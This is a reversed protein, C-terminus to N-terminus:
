KLMVMKKVSYHSGAKISYFYVGSNVPTGNMNKGNWQVFHIGAPRVENVLTAVESGLLDYVKIQVEGQIPTRYEIITNPNFPNPYNQMLEFEGPIQTYDGKIGVPVDIGGSFAVVKGDRSGALFELTGNMDIDGMAWIAEAAYSNTGGGFAYTFLTDSNKGGFVYIKNDLSAVGIEPFGDANLDGLLGTGLNNGSTPIATIMMGTKGSLVYIYPTLAQVLVDAVGDENMDNIVILDEVFGGGVQGSWWLSGNSIDVAYVKGQIDGAVVYRKGGTTDYLLDIAWCSADTAYTWQFQALDNFAYIEAATANSFRTTSAGGGPYSIVADKMKKAQSDDIRWIQAGTRGDLLYISFRGSGNFENGSASALIDVIGDNNWDKKGDIGNVDGQDYNIPDGFEWIMEGTAGDIMYVTEGGGATGICVEGVGDGNIDAIPQLSGVRSVTGTNSNDPASSFKWLIDSDVSSNGNYAITWYNDTAVIMDAIGDGNLDGAKKIFKASRDQYSTAPNDPIIGEWMKAGLVSDMPIVNAALPIKYHTSNSANSYVRLTDQLLGYSLPNAWVRFTVIGVSDITFDDNPKVLYFTETDFRISDVDLEASGLNEFSIERYGTSRIRKNGYNIDSVSSSIVPGVFIGRGNLKVKSYAFNIDNHYIFVSDKYYVPDAPTFTIPIQGMQNPQVIVPFTVNTTFAGSSFKMSDIQLPATGVNNMFMQSTGNSGIQVNGYDIQTTVLQIQPTGSGGLDFKYLARQSSSGIVRAILWLYKGDWALGRPSISTGTGTPVPFSFLTDETAVNVAYIREADGEFNEMVYFLTDGKMMVGQPQIGFTPLTDVLQKTAIDLKYVGASANPYYVTFWLGGNDYATGGMYYTTMSISDVVAGQTTVKRFNHRSTLRENYWFHTGDWALGQSERITPYDIQISDVVNGLTDMGILKGKNGTASSGSSIWLKGNAYVLGYASNYYAVAPLPITKVLSQADISLILVTFLLLFRKM